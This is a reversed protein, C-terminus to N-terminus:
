TEIFIISQPSKAYANHGEHGGDESLETFIDKKKKRLFFGSLLM